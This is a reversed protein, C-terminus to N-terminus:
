ETGTGTLMDKRQGHVDRPRAIRVTRRGHPHPVPQVPQPVVLVEGAPVRAVATRTKRGSLQGRDTHQLEQETQRVPLCRFRDATTGIELVGQGHLQVVRAEVVAHQGVEAFSDDPIAAGVTKEIQCEGTQLLGSEYALAGRLAGIGGM